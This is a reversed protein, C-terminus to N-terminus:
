RVYQQIYNINNNFSRLRNPLFDTMINVLNNISHKVSLSNKCIKNFDKTSTIAVTHFISSTKSYKVIYFYMDRITRNSILLNNEITKLPQNDESTWKLSLLKTINVINRRFDGNKSYIPDVKYRILMDSNNKIKKFSDKLEHWYEPNYNENAKIMKANDILGLENFGTSYIYRFGRDIDIYALLIYIGGKETNCKNHLKIIEKDVNSKLKELFMDYDRDSIGDANYYYLPIAKATLALCSVIIVSASVGKIYQWNFKIKKIKEILKPFAFVELIKFLIVPLM